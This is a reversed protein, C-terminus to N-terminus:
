PSVKGAPAEGGPMELTHWHFVIRGWTLVAPGRLLADGTKGVPKFRASRALRLATQDAVKSGSGDGLVVASFVFGSPSVGVEVVTNSLIDTHPISPVELPALLERGLLGGELRFGSRAPLPVPSLAVPTLRPAPKETLLRPGVVNTRVFEAFDGGLQEVRVNLWRQPETWDASRHRLGPARMWASGSFGRTSPMAFLTPDEVILFEALASGSPPDAILQFDTPAEAPRAVIPKRESLWFIVGAQAVTVFLIASWWRFRTWAVPASALANMEDRSM